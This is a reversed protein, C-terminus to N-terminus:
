PKYDAHVTVDVVEAINELMLSPIKISHDVLKIQFNADSIVETGKIQLTGKEEYPRSVGHLLLDGKVVVAYKGDKSLDAATIIVGKFEAAPYKGSELYSDNFHDKMLKYKFAFSNVPVKFYIEKTKVNLTTFAQMTQAKIDELPTSSFFSVSATKDTRVDQAFGTSSAMGLMMWLLYRRM